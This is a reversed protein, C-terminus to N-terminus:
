RSIAPECPKALYDDVIVTGPRRRGESLQDIDPGMVWVTQRQEGVSNLLVPMKM